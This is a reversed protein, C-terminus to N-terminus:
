YQLQCRCMNVGGVSQAVVLGYVDGGVPTAATNCPLGPGVGEPCPVGTGTVPPFNYAATANSSEFLDTSLFTHNPGDYWRALAVEGRAAGLPTELKAAMPEAAAPQSGALLGLVLALPAALAISGAKLTRAM